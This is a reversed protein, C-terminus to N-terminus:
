TNWFGEPVIYQMRSDRLHGFIHQLEYFMSHAPPPEPAVAAAVVVDGGTGGGSTSSADGAEAGAEAQGEARKTLYEEEVDDSVALLADRICPQMSMQQLLSNMYCTAGANKLGVFGQAPRAALLPLHDWKGAMEGPKNHYTQLLAALEVTNPACGACLEVLLNFAARRSEDTSCLAVPEAGTEGRALSRSAPFLFADMLVQVLSAGTDSAGESPPARIGAKDIGPFATLARMLGLHGTLLGDEEEEREEEDEEEKEEEEEEKDNGDCVEEDGEMDEGETGTLALALWKKLRRNRNVMKYLGQWRTANMSSTTLVHSKSTGNAIQAAQLQGAVKVSRHPAGAMRSTSGIVIALDKNQNPKGTMGTSVLVARQLNHPFCVKFPQRLLKAAAKNNSAGDETALSIDSPREGYKALVSRKMAAVNAASHKTNTFVEFGLMPAVDLITGANKSLASSGKSYPIAAELMMSQRMCFFSERMSKESWIDSTTGSHPAICVKAHVSIVHCLKAEVLTRIVRLIKICTGRHPLGARKNLSRIWVKLSPSRTLYFVEWSLFCHEVFRVHSPLSEKFSWIQPFLAPM